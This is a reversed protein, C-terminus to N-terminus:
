FAIKEGDLPILIKEPGIGNADAFRRLAERILTAHDLSEMHTAVVTSNPAARCVALTQEADMVILVGNGWLAGCSHTIIVDPRTRFIIDAVAEYWITDGTWYVTPENLSSFVFGSANGMEKLVEGTGHQCSTRTITIGQWNVADVVPIVYRFGKAEIEAKDEPQCLVPIYKPLLEQATPDFHDSHLHSIVIMEAHAIVKLPSCPLDVLPNPSKGALSPRSHKAALYPDIVFTHGAYEIRLTASRILQIQM